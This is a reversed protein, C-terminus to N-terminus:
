VFPHDSQKKTSIIPKQFNVKLNFIKIM